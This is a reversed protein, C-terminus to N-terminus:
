KRFHGALKGKDFVFSTNYRKKGEAEYVSGAVLVTGTERSLAALQQLCDHDARILYSDAKRDHRIQPFYPSLFLEPLAIIQAGQKAADEIHGIAKDLNADMSATMSMQVLAVRIPKM